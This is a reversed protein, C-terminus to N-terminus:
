TGRYTSYGFPSLLLPVHYRQGSQVDFSVTVDPFFPTVGAARQYAATDFILRYTGASPEDRSFSEIRGNVDTPASGIVTWGTGRRMELVVVIGSAPTGRSIDLVHTSIM